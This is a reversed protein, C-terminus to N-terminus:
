AAMLQDVRGLAAVLPERLAIPGTLPNSQCLDIRRDSAIFDRLGAAAQRIRLRAAPDTPAQRGELLAKWLAVMRGGTLANLGGETIGQEAIRKLRVHGQKHLALRLAEIQQDAQEKADRWASLATEVATAGGQSAAARQLAQELQDLSAQGAGFNKNRALEGASLVLRKLMAAADSDSGAMATKVRPMLAALRANFALAPDLGTSAGALLREAADLVAGAQSFDKKRAAMGAESIKLKLENANPGAASIEAKFKPMLAALRANFAASEDDSALHQPTVPLETPASVPTAPTTSASGQLSESSAQEGEDPEAPEGDDDIDNPDEGRVRVKWRMETQALLAARIKKAMGSAQMQMVFTHANEEWICQGAFSKAATAGLFEQLLKKRSPPISRRSVLVATDKGSTVIMVQMTEGKKVQRLLLVAKSTLLAPSEEEEEGSGQKAAKKAEFEALKREKAAAKDTDDLYVTVEKDAKNAKRLAGAQRDIEDLAALRDEPTKGTELAALAKVFAADKLNRGKSFKKWELETLKNDSM